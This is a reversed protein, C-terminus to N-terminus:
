PMYGSVSPWHGQGAAAQPWGGPTFERGRYDNESESFRRRRWLRADDSIDRTM